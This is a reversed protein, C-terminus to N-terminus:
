GANARITTDLDPMGEPRSKLVIQRNFNAM